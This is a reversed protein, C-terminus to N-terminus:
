GGTNRGGLQSEIESSLYNLNEDRIIVHYKCFKSWLKRPYNNTYSASTKSFDFIVSLIPMKFIHTYLIADSAHKHFCYFLSGRSRCYSVLVAIGCNKTIFNDPIFHHGFQSKLLIKGKPNYHKLAKHVIKEYHDFKRHLEGKPIHGFYNQEASINTKVLQMAKRTKDSLILSVIERRITANSIPILDNTILIHKIEPSIRPSTVIFPIEKSLRAKKDLFQALGRQAFETVEEVLKLRENRFYGFDFNVDKFFYNFKYSLRMKDNEKAIAKEQETTPKANITRRIGGMKGYNSHKNRKDESWVYMKKQM